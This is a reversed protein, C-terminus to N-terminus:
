SKKAKKSKKNKKLLNIEKQQKEIIKKLIIFEDRTVLDLKSALNEKNFKISTLLEKKLDQSNLVGVEIFASIMKIIKQSNNM